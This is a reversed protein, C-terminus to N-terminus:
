LGFCVISLRRIPGITVTANTSQELLRRSRACPFSIMLTHVRAGCSQHMKGAGKGCGGGDRKVIDQQALIRHGAASKCSDCRTTFSSLCILRLESQLYLDQINNLQYISSGGCFLSMPGKPELCAPLIVFPYLLRHGRTEWLRSFKTTFCRTSSHLGYASVHLFFFVSFSLIRFSGSGANDGEGVFLCFVMKKTKVM